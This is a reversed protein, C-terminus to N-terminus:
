DRHLHCVQWWVLLVLLYTGVQLGFMWQIILPPREKPAEIQTIPETAKALVQLASMISIILRPADM